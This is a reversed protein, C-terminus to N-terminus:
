QVLQDSSVPLSHTVKSGQKKESISTVKVTLMNGPCMFPHKLPLM